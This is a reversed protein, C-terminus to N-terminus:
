QRREIALQIIKGVLLLAALLAINLMWFEHTTTHEDHTLYLVIFPSACAAILMYWTWFAKSSNKMAERNNLAALLCYM